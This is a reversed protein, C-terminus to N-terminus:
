VVKEPPVYCNRCRPEYSDSDGVLVTAGLKAPSKNVLRQTFRGPKGCISCYATLKEVEDAIAMLGGMPGFEKASYDIDLGNIIIYKKNFALEKVLRIISKNFFQAEDFAIIDYGKSEELIQAMLYDTLEVPIAKAPISSGTRSSIRTVDFRTDIEPKYAIFKKKGYLQAKVCKEILRGSKESFMPGTIVSIFGSEGDYNIM